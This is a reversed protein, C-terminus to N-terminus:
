SFCINYQRFQNHFVFFTEARNTRWTSKRNTVKEWHRNTKKQSVCRHSGGPRTVNRRSRRGNEREKGFLFFFRPFVITNSREIEFSENRATIYSHLERRTPPFNTPQLLIGRRKSVRVDM